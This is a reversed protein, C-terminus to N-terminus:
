GRGKTQLSSRFGPEPAAGVADAKRRAMALVDRDPDVGIIRARPQVRNLLLALSGTGCGVDIIVDDPRPVVHMALLGRWLRERMLAVIPDYFHTPAFRGMAPTFVRETMHGTEVARRWVTKFLGSAGPWARRFRVLACGSASEDADARVRHRARDAVHAPMTKVLPM